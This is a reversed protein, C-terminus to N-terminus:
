ILNEGNLRELALMVEKKRQRAVLVRVGNSLILYYDSAGAEKKVATIHRVNVCFSIHPSVFGFRALNDAVERIGQNVRISETSKSVSYYYVATSRKDSHCYLIDRARLHIVSGGPRFVVDQNQEAIEALVDRLDAFFDERQVPKVIYRYAAVKYGDKWYQEFSTVFIIKVDRDIERIKLAVDFGSANPMQYDLFILDFGLDIQALLDAGSYYPHIEYEAGTSVTNFYDELLDMLRQVHEREDDTIAIRIM